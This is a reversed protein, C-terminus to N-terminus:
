CLTDKNAHAVTNMQVIMDYKNSPKNYISPNIRSGVLTFMDMASKRAEVNPIDDM